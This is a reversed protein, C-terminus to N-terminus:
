RKEQNVDFFCFLIRAICVEELSEALKVISLIVTRLISVYSGFHRSVITIKKATEPSSTQISRFTKFFKQISKLTKFFPWHRFM